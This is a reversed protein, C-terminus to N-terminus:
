AWSRVHKAIADIAGFLDPSPLQYDTRIRTYGYKPEPQIAISGKLANSDAQLLKHKLQYDFNLRQALYPDGRWEIDVAKGWLPSSKKKIMRTKKADQRGTQSLSKVLYDLYYNTGYQSSVGMIRISDINRDEVAIVGGSKDGWSPKPIGQELDSGKELPSAKVGIGQLHQHLEDLKKQGGKKRKRLAMPLAVAAVIAVIIPFLEGLDM